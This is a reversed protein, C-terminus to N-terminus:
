TGFNKGLVRSSLVIINVPCKIAVNCNRNVSNCILLHTKHISSHAVYMEPASFFVHLIDYLDDLGTLQIYLFIVTLNLILKWNFEDLSLASTHKLVSVIYHLRKSSGRRYQTILKCDLICVHKHSPYPLCYFRWFLCTTSAM